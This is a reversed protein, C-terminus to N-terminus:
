QDDVVEFTTRLSEHRIILQTLAAAALNPDLEGRCTWAIPMNLAHNGPRMQHLLWFRMQCPTAPMVFVEPRAGTTSHEDESSPNIKDMTSEM